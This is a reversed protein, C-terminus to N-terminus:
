ARDGGRRRGPAEAEVAGATGNGRVFIMRNGGVFDVEIPVRYLASLNEATLIDATEGILVRGDQVLALRRVHNVVENLHHSVMLVTLRDRDHLERVLDLIATSGVLDMGDTPEDLVLMSPRGVLARAILARQRQGGSLAAFPRDAHPGIGVHELADLAAERDRAGPRRMLGIRDYAGMAVVEATRLPWFADLTQRQPVYGFRLAEDDRVISGARPKLIGLIARLITTKGAGNPGVLGLFDGERIAFDLGSLVPEAGYGLAVDHFAILRRGAENASQM